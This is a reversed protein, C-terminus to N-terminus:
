ITGLLTWKYFELPNYSLNRQGFYYIKPVFDILDLSDGDKMPYIDYDMYAKIGVPFATFIMNFM